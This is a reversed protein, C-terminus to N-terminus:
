MVPRAYITDRSYSIVQIERKNSKEEVPATTEEEEFDSIGGSVAPVFTLPESAAPEYLTTDPSTQIASFTGTWGEGTEDTCAFSGALVGSGNSVGIMRAVMLPSKILLIELDLGNEDFQGTVMGNWPDPTEGTCAGSVASGMMFLAATFEELPFSGGSVQGEECRFAWLGSLDADNEAIAPSTATLLFILIACTLTLNRIMLGNM